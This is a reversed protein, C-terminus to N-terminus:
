ISLNISVPNILNTKFYQSSFSYASVLSNFVSENIFYGIQNAGLNRKTKGIVENFMTLAATVYYQGFESNIVINPYKSEPFYKELAENIIASYKAVDIAEGPFGGGEFYIRTILFFIFM